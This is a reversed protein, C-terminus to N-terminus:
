HTKDEPELDVLNHLIRHILYELVPRVGVLVFLWISLLIMRGAWFTFSLSKRTFFRWFSRRGTCMELQSILRQWAALEQIQEM